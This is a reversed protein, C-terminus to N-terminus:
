ELEFKIPLTLMVKVAKGDQEGPTWAPMKGVTELAANRLAVSITSKADVVQPETVNGAEDIIFSVLVKGSENSKSSSKPYVTNESMFKFLGDMGGKFEPMKEIVEYVGEPTNQNLPKVETYVVDQTALANAKSASSSIPDATQVDKACSHMLLAVALVPIAFLYKMKGTPKTQNIMQIRSKLLSKKSFQHGLLNVPVGGLSQSVLVHSYTICNSFKMCVVEDARFEHNEELASDLYYVAPNFWGFIKV